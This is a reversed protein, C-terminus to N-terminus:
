SFCKKKRESLLKRALSGLNSRRHDHLDITTGYSRLLIGGLVVLNSKTIHIYTIRYSKLLKGALSRIDSSRHDHM